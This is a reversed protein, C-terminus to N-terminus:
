GHVSAMRRQHGTPEALWYPRLLVDHRPTENDFAFGQDRADSRHSGAPWVSLGALRRPDASPPRGDADYAPKLPSAAFLNLIDM